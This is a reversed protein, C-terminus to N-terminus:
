KFNKLLFDLKIVQKGLKDLVVILMTCQTAYPAILNGFTLFCLWMSTLDGKAVIELIMFYTSVTIMIFGFSFINFIILGFCQSFGRSILWMDDIIVMINEVDYKHALKSAKLMDNLQCGMEVFYSCLMSACNNIHITLFGLSLTALTLFAYLIHDIIPQGNKSFGFYWFLINSMVCWIIFLNNVGYIRPLFKDFYNQPLKCELNIKDGIEAIMNMLVVHDRSSMLCKQLTVVYITFELVIEILSSITQMSSLSGIDLSIMHIYMSILFGAIIILRFCISYWLNFSSIALRNSKTSVSISYLGLLFLLNIYPKYKILVAM